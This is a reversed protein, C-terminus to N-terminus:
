PLAVVQVEVQFLEKVEKDLHRVMQRVVAVAVALTRGLVLLGMQEMEQRHAEEQGEQLAEAVM